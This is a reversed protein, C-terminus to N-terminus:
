PRLQIQDDKAHIPLSWTSRLLGCSRARSPLTNWHGSEMNLSIMPIAISHSINEEIGNKWDERNDRDSEGKSAAPKKVERGSQREVAIGSEQRLM